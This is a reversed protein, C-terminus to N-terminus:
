HHAARERIKEMVYWLPLLPFNGYEDAPVGLFENTEFYPQFYKTGEKQIMILYPEPHHAVYAVEFGEDSPFRERATLIPTPNGGISCMAWKGDIERLAVRIRPKGDVYVPFNWTVFRLAEEFSTTDDMTAIMGTDLIYKPYPKGVTITNLSDSPKLWLNNILKERSHRSYFAEAEQLAIEALGPPVKMEIGTCLTTCTLVIGLCVLFGFSSRAAIM